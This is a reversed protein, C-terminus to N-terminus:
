FKINAVTSLPLRISARWGQCSLNINAVRFERMSRLFLEAHDENDEVLLIVLPEGVIKEM